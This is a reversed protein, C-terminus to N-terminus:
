AGSGEIIAALDEGALSYLDLITLYLDARARWLDNAKAEADAAKGAVDLDTSKGLTLLSQEMTLRRDALSAADGLLTLKEELETKQLLDIEVQDLVAQRQATLSAGAVAALAANGASAEKQRGGDFLHVTLGLALTYDQGADASFLDTFSKGLDSTSYPYNNSDYPYRPAWSFSLSFTSAFQQGALVGDLRKEEAALNKQQLIPQGALAKDIVEQRSLTFALTPVADALTLDKLDERGLSHALLRETKALSSSLELYAQKQRSLGLKADLLDAEAVAGLAYNKQLVDINGQAVDITKQTQAGAKRLQVISFFLQIAQGLTQNRQGRNAADQELYGLQAKRQTAPFLDLDLLKGNLFLPQTLSLSLKPKQTFLTDPTTAAAGNVTEGGVASITMTDELGVSLSGATPLLQSVSLRAGLLNTSQDTVVTDQSQIFPYATLTKVSQSEVKPTYALSYNSSLDIQPLAQAVTGQYTHLAFLTSQASIAATTDHALVLGPLDVLALGDATAPVARGAGAMAAILLPLLFRKM